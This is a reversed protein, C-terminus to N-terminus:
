PHFVRCLKRGLRSRTSEGGGKAGPAIGRSQAQQALRAEVLGAEIEPDRKTDVWTEGLFIEALNSLQARDEGDTMPSFVEDDGGHDAILEDYDQTLQPDAAKPYETLSSVYRSTESVDEDLTPSSDRCKSYKTNTKLLISM